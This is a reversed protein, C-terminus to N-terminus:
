TGRFDTLDPYRVRLWQQQKTSCATEDWARVSYPGDGLPYLWAEYVAEPHHKFQITLSSGGFPGKRDQYLIFRDILLDHSIPKLNKTTDPDADGALFADIAARLGMVEPAGYSSQLIGMQAETFHIPAPADLTRVPRPALCRRTMLQYPRDTAIAPASLISFTSILGYALTILFRNRM